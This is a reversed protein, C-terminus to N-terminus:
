GIIELLVGFIEDIRQIHYEMTDVYVRNDRELKVFMWLSGTTVIGYVAVISNGKQANFRMAAVMEAICQPLEGILNENKAEVVMLVPASLVLQEASLSIIYDCRGNLGVKQDVVFETGSFLSIKKPAHLKFEVLVPAIILESRAKETNILTALPVYRQLVDTLITPLQVPQVDPFLQTDEIIQIGFREKISEITFDSYSM